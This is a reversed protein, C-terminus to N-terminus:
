REDVPPLAGMLPRPMAEEESPESAEETDGEAPELPEVIMAPISAVRKAEEAQEEASAEGSPALALGFAALAGAGVGALARKRRVRKAGVPCDGTIVTGDRRQYFRVCPRDGESGLLAEVQATSMESLNYVDKNCTGCHRIADDGKM